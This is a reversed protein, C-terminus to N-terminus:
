YTTPLYFTFLNFSHDCVFIPMWRTFSLFLDAVNVQFETIFTTSPNTKM